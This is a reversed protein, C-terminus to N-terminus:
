PLLIPKPKVKMKDWLSAKNATEPRIISGNNWLEDKILIAEMQLEWTDSGNAIEVYRKWKCNGRTAEMQLKWTDSGNAIEM